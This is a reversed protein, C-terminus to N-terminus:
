TDANVHHTRPMPLLGANRASEIRRKIAIRSVGLYESIVKDTQTVGFKHAISYLDSAEERKTAYTKEPRHSLHYLLLDKRAGVTLMECLTPDELILKVLAAKNIIYDKRRQWYGFDIL